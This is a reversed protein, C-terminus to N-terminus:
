PNLRFHFTITHSRLKGPTFRWRTKVIRLASTNLMPWPSASSVEASLVRGDGGVVLLVTVSGEQRQRQSERPYEPAPQKGEGQGFILPTPAPATALAPTKVGPAEVTRSSAERAPVVTAPTATPVAFAIQPTPAAVAMLPPPPPMAQAQAMPPPQLLSPPPPAPNVPPLPGGTLEVNLLEAVVPPPSKVPAQPRLYPLVFGAAGTLLCGIWVVLTLMPVLGSEERPPLALPVTTRGTGQERMPRPVASVAANM